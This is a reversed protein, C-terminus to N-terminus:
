QYIKELPSTLAPTPINSYDCPTKCVVRVSCAEQLPNCSPNESNDLSKLLALLFTLTNETKKVFLCGFITFVM